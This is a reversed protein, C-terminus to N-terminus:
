LLNECYVAQLKSTFIFSSKVFWHAVLSIIGHGGQLSHYGLFKLLCLKIENLVESTNALLLASWPKCITKCERYFVSKNSLSGM